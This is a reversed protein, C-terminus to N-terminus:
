KLNRRLIEHIKKINFLKKRFNVFVLVQFVSQILFAGCLRGVKFISQITILYTFKVEFVTLKLNYFYRHYIEM